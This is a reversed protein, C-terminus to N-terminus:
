DTLFISDDEAVQLGSPQTFFFEGSEDTIRFVEEVQLIRGADSSLPKEPNQIIEQSFLSFPLLMWLTFLIMIKKMQIGLM